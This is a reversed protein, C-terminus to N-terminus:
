VEWHQTRLPQGFALTNLGQMQAMFATMDVRGFLSGSHSPISVRYLVAFANDDELDSSAARIRPYQSKVSWGCPVVRRMDSSAARIRPYQSLKKTLYM